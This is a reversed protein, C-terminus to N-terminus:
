TIVQANMGTSPITSGTVDQIITGTIRVTSSGPRLSRFNVTALTGTSPSIGTPGTRTEAITYGGTVPTPSVFFTQSGDSSLLSGQASQYELATQDYLIDFQYAYLNPPPNNIRIPIAVTSGSPAGPIPVLAVGSPCNTVVAQATCQPTCSVTCGCNPPASLSECTYSGIQSGDCQESEERIGNGCRTQGTQNTQNTQNTGAPANFEDADTAAACGPDLPYDTFGDVDNDIGDSCAPQVTPMCAYAITCQVSCTATGSQGSPCSLSLGPPDCQEPDETISNGCTATQTPLCTGFRCQSNCIQMGPQGASTTCSNVGITPAIECEEPSSIIGDGCTASTPTTILFERDSQDCTQTGAYCIEIRYQGDPMQGEASQGVVWQYVPSVPAGLAIVYPARVPMLPCPAPPQCIPARPIARIDLIQGANATWRLPVTSGRNWVEGGNPSVVRLPATATHVRFAVTRSRGYLQHNARALTVRITHRGDALSTFTYSGDADQDMVEGNRDLKLHVHDGPRLTGSIRYQVEVTNGNVTHGNRPALITLTPRGSEGAQGTASLFDGATPSYLLAAITAIAVVILLHKRYDRRQM